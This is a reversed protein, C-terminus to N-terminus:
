VGTGPEPFTVREYIEALPLEAEVSTLNLLDADEHYEHYLWGGGAQRVYHEVRMKESAVLVYDTLSEIRKYREFKDGPDFDETSPSLVEFIVQPNLLSFPKKTQDFKGEGCLAVVDPYTWLEGAQVRVSADNFYARCPRGRFRNYFMGALNSMVELHWPQVGAMAYIEGGVFQSKYDAKEELMAYEEQTFTRRPLASMPYSKVGNRLAQCHTRGTGLGRRRPDRHAPHRRPRRPNARRAAPRHLRVRGRTPAPQPRAPRTTRRKRRPPRHHPPEHAAFRGARGSVRIRAGHRRRRPTKGLRGFRAAGVMRAPARPLPNRPNRPRDPPHQDHPRPRGVRRGWGAGRGRRRGDDRLIRVGRRGGLPPGPWLPSQEHDGPKARGARVRVPHCGRPAPQNGRQRRRRGPLARSRPRRSPRAPHRAPHAADRARPTRRQAPRTREVPLAPLLSRRQRRHRPQRQPQAPPRPRQRHFRAHRHRRPADHRLRVVPTGDDMADAFRRTGAPLCALAARMKTEATRQLHAAYATVTALGHRAILEGLLAAGTANAAMQAHLDALNEDPSRSPYPGSLLLARLADDSSAPADTRYRFARILVGEEALTRADPPLSGPAIGGIEAHHARSATFFAPSPSAATFVPTIVTVDPLHSGGRFPDNTIYVEGPRLDPVDARLCRVCEEMAGLHVPIHAANAVLRGDADFLACSFDLREKVNTSLATRRLAVGMQEAVSAFRGHFLELEVPDADSNYPPREAQRTIPNPNSDAVTRITGEKGSLAAPSAGARCNLLLDGHPTTQAHWGPEVVVTAVADLIIAPGNFSAGPLLDAREYVPTPRLTNADHDWTQTHFAPASSPHAPAPESPMPEPESSLEVRAAYNEIPRGDFVFGFERQHQHVFAADFNGDPPEPITLRAEQGRYRMELMRRPPLSTTVGEASMQARASTELEAFVPAVPEGNALARAAFKTIGALGIGLASQVGAHPSCLVRTMGLERAVACAHQGGAGGFAVLTHTRPDDGRVAALKKIPAVMAANAIRLFGAALEERGYTRGSAAAIQAILEDLRREVAPRDLVFPFRPIKGLFFNLDTVTLPGGRGYCAPGPDAGASRPGVAPKQGDFWCVSGGGAAVTEIELTSTQLRMRRVGGSGGAEAEYRRAFRDGDWRSVDTSTGGMDFAFAPAYGARDTIRATGVVGGAPGSLIADKGSFNEATVLSGASTMFRVDADPMQALLRQCYGRLVPTLYADLVTTDGRYVFKPLPSVQSSLSVHTFGLLSAIRAVAQEHRPERHAHLLSVALSEVGAARLAALKERTDSEDLARLVHGDAALREDLEVATEYLEPPQDIRLDFLHPRDQYGIRLADGFGATTVLATRAGRRELLANTARTTGLRVRVPGLPQDLRRGLLWRIGAVPAEEDSFLGGRTGPPPPNPLPDDFGLTARSADFRAVTRAVSGHGPLECVFRYGIFYGNPAAALAHDHWEGNTCGDTATTPYRGTSLLKHTHSRGDPALAICDTFTGGVDIWFRWAGPPFSSLAAENM